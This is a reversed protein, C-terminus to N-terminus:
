VYVLDRMCVRDSDGDEEVKKKSCDSMSKGHPLRARWLKLTFNLEKGETQRM